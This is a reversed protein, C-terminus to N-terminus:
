DVLRGIKLGKIFNISLYAHHQKYLETMDNGACELIIKKGGPHRGLFQTMDFLEGEYSCWCDDPKNHKALEARTIDGIWQVRKMPGHRSM